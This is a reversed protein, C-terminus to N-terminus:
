LYSLLFGRRDEFKWRCFKLSVRVQSVTSASQDDFHPTRRKYHTYKTIQDSSANNSGHPGTMLLFSDSTVLRLPLMPKQNNIRFWVYGWFQMCLVVNTWMKTLKLSVCSLVLKLKKFNGLCAQYLLLINCFLVVTCKYVVTHQIYSLVSEFSHIM